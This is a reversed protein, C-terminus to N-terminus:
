AMLVKKKAMEVTAVEVVVVVVMGEAVAVTVTTSTISSINRQTSVNNAALFNCLFNSATHNFPQSHLTAIGSAMLISSWNM